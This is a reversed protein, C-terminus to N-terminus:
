LRQDDGWGGDAPPYPNPPDAPNTPHHPQGLQSNPSDPPAAAGASPQTPRSPASGIPTGQSAQLCDAIEAAVIPDLQDFLGDADQLQERLIRWYRYNHLLRQTADVLQGRLKRAKTRLIAQDIAEGAALLYTGSYLLVALHAVLGAALLFGFILNNQTAFAPGVHKLAEYQAAAGLPQIALLLGGLLLWGKGSIKPKEDFIAFPDALVAPKTEERARGWSVFLELGVIIAPVLWRAPEELGDAALGAVFEALSRLLLVDLGYAAAILLVVFVMLLISAGSLQTPILRTEVEELRRRLKHRRYGTLTLQRHCNALRALSYM